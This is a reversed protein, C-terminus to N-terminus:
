QGRLFPSLSLCSIFVILQNFWSQLPPSSTFPSWPLTPSPCIWLLVGFPSPVLFGVKGLDGHDRTGLQSSFGLVLIRPPEWASCGQSPLNGLVKPHLKTPSPIGAHGCCGRQPTRAAWCACSSQIELPTELCRSLHPVAQRLRPRGPTGAGGHAGPGSSGPSRNSCGSSKENRTGM